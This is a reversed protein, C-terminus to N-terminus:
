SKIDCLLDIAKYLRQRNLVYVVIFWLKFFPIVMDYAGLYGKTEENSWSQWSFEREVNTWIWHQGPLKWRVYLVQIWFQTALDLHTWIELPGSPLPRIQIQAWLRNYIFFSGASWSSDSEPFLFSPFHKLVFAGICSEFMLASTKSSVIWFVANM